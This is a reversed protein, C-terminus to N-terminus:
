PRGRMFSGVGYRSHPQRSGSVLLRSSQAQGLSPVTL